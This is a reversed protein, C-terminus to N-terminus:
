PPKYKNQTPNSRSPPIRRFSSEINKFPNEKGAQIDVPSSAFKSNAEKSQLQRSAKAHHPHFHIILIIALVVAAATASPRFSCKM